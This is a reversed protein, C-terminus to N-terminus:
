QQIWLESFIFIAKKCRTFVSSLFGWSYKMLSGAKGYIKQRWSLTELLWQHRSVLVTPSGLDIADSLPFKRGFGITGPPMRWVPAAAAAPAITQGWSVSRPHCPRPSTCGVMPEWAGEGGPRLLVCPLCPTLVPLLLVFVCCSLDTQPPVSLQRLQLPVSPKCVSPGNALPTQHPAGM